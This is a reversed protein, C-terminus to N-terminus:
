LLIYQCCKFEWNIKFTFNFSHPKRYYESSQLDKGVHFRIKKIDNVNIIDTANLLLKNGDIDLFTFDTLNAIPLNLASAFYKEFNSLTAIVINWNTAPDDTSNPYQLSFFNAHNLAFEYMEKWYKNKLFSELQGINGYDSSNITTISNNISNALGFYQGLEQYKFHNNSSDNVLLTHEPCYKTVEDTDDDIAQQIMNFPTFDLPNDKLYNIIDKKSTPQLDILDYVINPNSVYTIYFSNPPFKSSSYQVINCYQNSDTANGVYNLEPQKILKFYPEITAENNLDIDPLPITSIIPFLNTTNAFEQDYDSIFRNIEFQIHKYVVTNDVKEDGYYFTNPLYGHTWQEPLYDAASSTRGSIHQSFKGEFQNFMMFKEYFKNTNKILVIVPLKFEVFSSKLKVKLDFKTLRDSQISSKDLLENSDAKYYTFDYNTIDTSFFSDWWYEKLLLDFVQKKSQEEFYPLRLNKNSDNIPINNMDVVISQEPLRQKFNGINFASQMALAIFFTSIVSVIIMILFMIIALFHNKLKSPVAKGTVYKTMENLKTWDDNNKKKAM